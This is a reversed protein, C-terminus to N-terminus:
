EWQIALRLASDPQVTTSIPACGAQTPGNSGSLALYTRQTVGVPTATFTSLDGIESALFSLMFPSCRVQPQFGFHRFVQPAGSVLTSTASPSPLCVYAVVDSLQATVYTTRDPRGNNSMYMHFGTTTPTGSDDTTRCVAFFVTSGYAAVMGGRKWALAFYGPLACMGSWYTLGGAVANPSIKTRSLYTTGSVTGAGNTASAATVWIGVRGATDTGCEIKVYIPKTGHLSDNLYRIQYVSAGAAPITATAPNFQGTDASQPVGVTDFMGMLETTWAQFDANTAHALATTNYVTTM